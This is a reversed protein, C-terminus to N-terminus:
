QTYGAKLADPALTLFGLIKQLHTRLREAKNEDYAFPPADTELYNERVLEMQVAHVGNAPDGYHRTTWGGKFRGNVVYSYDSTIGAIYELSQEVLPACSTGDNTGINFDPLQGEFLFPLPSTISHCDYLIVVGHLAKIREIEQSLAEHYPTHFRALRDEIDAQTPEQGERWIPQNNFDTTPILSTTNQGPYLSAGSPDRNADIVYRNFTAQVTTVDFGLGDYLRNIHWDTDALIKGRDNLRDWISPEVQTGGHPSALIFPSTGQKVTVISM